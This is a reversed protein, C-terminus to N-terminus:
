ADQPGVPCFSAHLVSVIGAIVPSAIAYIVRQGDRTATILHERRLLALQQSAAPERINLTRAIEGSSLPAQLLQCLIRLRPGHGMARLLRAAADSSAALPDAPAPHMVVPAFLSQM